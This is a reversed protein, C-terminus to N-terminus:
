ESNEEPTPIALLRPVSCEPKHRAFNVTHCQVCAMARLVPHPYTYHERIWERMEGVTSRLRIIEAALTFSLTSQPRALAFQLRGEDIQETSM